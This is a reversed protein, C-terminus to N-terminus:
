ACIKSFSSALKESSKSAKQQRFQALIDFSGRIEIASIILLYKNLISSAAGDWLYFDCFSEM